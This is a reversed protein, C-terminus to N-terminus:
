EVTVSYNIEAAHAQGSGSLKKGSNGGLVSVSSETVAGLDERSTEWIKVLERGVYKEAELLQSISESFM